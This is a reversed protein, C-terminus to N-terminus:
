GAELIAPVGIAQDRRIDLRRQNVLSETEKFLLSIAPKSELVVLIVPSSGVVMAIGAFSTPFAESCWWVLIVFWDSKVISAM